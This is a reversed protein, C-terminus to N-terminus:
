SSVIFKKYIKKIFIKIDFSCNAFRVDRETSEVHSVDSSLMMFLFAGGGFLLLLVSTLQSNRRGFMKVRKLVNLELHM